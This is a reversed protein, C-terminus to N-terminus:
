TNDFEFNITIIHVFAQYRSRGKTEVQLEELSLDTIEKIWGDKKNDTTKEFKGPMTSKKLGKDILKFWM